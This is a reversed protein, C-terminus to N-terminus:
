FRIGVTAGFTRPNGIHNYDFGFGSMLDGRATYYFADALNKAWVSANWRRDASEWRLHTSVVAYAKQKLRAVNLLEFYSGTSWSTDAHLTVSGAPGDTLRVDFGSTLTLTPANPLHKGVISQGKLTGEVARAHLVGAALNLTLWDNALLRFEIEGGYIHSLPLNRLQQAATAPNVDLFQQNRYRYYFGALNLTLRRDLYQTKAGAEWADVTESKSVSLEAPEFFAQANFGPARFGRSYNAYLLHGAPLTYDIGIKGSLNSVGYHLASRPITNVIHAGDFGYIGAAFGTQDGTERSFRLGARLKVQDSLRLVTDTYLAVSQKTQDFTNRFQCALPLGALCDNFDVRGNADLDFDPGIGLGNANFVNERNFYAGVIFTVLGDPDNSLRLDQTFQRVDDTADIQLLGIRQGDADEGYQLHGKDWSTVSTLTLRDSIRANGTLSVAYTRINQRPTYTAEIQRTTLGARNSTVPEAFDGFNHPNQFSTAARLVFEVDEAPQFLVTGRVAYERIDNLDPKGPVQNRFWGEAQSRTFAIRAALKEGLPVSLGGNVDIRNYNGYGFELNGEFEGLRPKRALLNIAGGTTNKGYLTGQPGRLVEIRELDFMAVGLLAFNGKYVEDYYTAVPSSQNLSYDSMSIGRLSFIPLNDGNTSTMQLNPVQAVLDDSHSIRQNRLMDSGLATVSVPVTQLRESRKQATVIIEGNGGDSEVSATSSNAEQASATVTSAAMALCSLTGGLTFRHTTM